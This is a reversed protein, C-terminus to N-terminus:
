NNKYLNLTCNILFHKRYFFLVFYIDGQILNIKKIGWAFNLADEALKRVYKFM